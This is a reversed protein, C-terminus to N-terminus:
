HLYFSLAIECHVIAIDFSPYSWKTKRTSQLLRVVSESVHSLVRMINFIMYVLQFLAHVHVCPTKSVDITPWSTFDAAVFPWLM